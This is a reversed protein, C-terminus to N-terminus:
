TALQNFLGLSGLLHPFHSVALQWTVGNDKINTHEHRRTARVHYKKNKWSTPHLVNTKKKM